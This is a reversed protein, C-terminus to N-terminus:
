PTGGESSFFNVVISNRDGHYSTWDDAEAYALQVFIEGEIVPKDYEDGTDLLRELELITGAESESGAYALVSNSGGLEVDITHGTPTSAFHDEIYTEGDLVYGMLIDANRMLPGDPALGVALWGAAPSSVALYIKDAVITWYLTMGTGEDYAARAYEGAAIQGDFQAAGAEPDTVVLTPGDEELGLFNIEMSNRDGHYSTWDDAEGYALQVSIKGEIIPKDYEDGTDLLREIELVTGAEDESGAYVLVSDSGGLEIDAKHNAPGDAFHDKVITEGDLVYGILIDANRMLPGDPAFGVALWGAAPSSVGLYLKDSVVTWYLTMGTGEDYFVRAYEGETIQGDVEAPRIDESQATHSDMDTMAHSDESKAWLSGMLVFGGLAFVLLFVTSLTLTNKTM